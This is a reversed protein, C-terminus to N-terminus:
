LTESDDLLDLGERRRERLVARETYKAQVVPPLETFLIINKTILLEIVDDLARIFGLDSVRFESESLSALFRDVDALQTDDVRDFGPMAERSVASVAGDTNRKIYTM